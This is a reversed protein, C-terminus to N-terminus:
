GDGWGAELLAQRVDADTLVLSQDFPITWNRLDSDRIALLKPGQFHRPILWQSVWYTPESVGMGDSQEPPDYIRKGSASVEYSVQEYTAEEGLVSISIGDVDSDGITWVGLYKQPLRWNECIAVIQFPQHETLTVGRRLQLEVYRKQRKQPGYRRELEAMEQDAFERMLLAIDEVNESGVKISNASVWIDNQRERRESSEGTLVIEWQPWKALVEVQLGVVLEGTFLSRDSLYLYFSRTGTRDVIMYKWEGDDHRRPGAYRQLFEETDTTVQWTERISIGNFQIEDLIPDSLRRRVKDDDREDSM